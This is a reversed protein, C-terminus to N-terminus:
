FFQIVSAFVMSQVALLGTIIAYDFRGLLDRSNTILAGALMPYAFMMIRATEGRIADTAVIVAWMALLAYLLPNALVPKWTSRRIWFPIWALGLFFFVDWPNWLLWAVRSRNMHIPGKSHAIIGDYLEWFFNYGSVMWLLTWLILPVAALIAARPMLCRVAEQVNRRHVLADLLAAVGVVFVTTIVQYALMSQFFISLGALASLLIYKERRLAMFFLGVTLAAFGMVLQDLSVSFMSAGPVLALMAMGRGWVPDGARSRTAYLFLGLGAMALLGGFLKLLTAATVAFIEGDSMNQPNENGEPFYNQPSDTNFFGRMARGVGSMSEGADIFARYVFVLGPPHTAIRLRNHEERLFDYRSFAEGPHDIVQAAQFFDEYWHVTTRSAIRAGPDADRVWIASVQFLMTLVCLAGIGSVTYLPRRSADILWGMIVIGAACLGMPMLALLNGAPIYPWQWEPPWAKYGRLQPIVNFALLVLVM